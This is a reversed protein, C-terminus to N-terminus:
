IGDSCCILRRLPRVRGHPHVAGGLYTAQPHENLRAAALFPVPAAAPAPAPVPVIRRELHLLYSAHGQGRLSGTVDNGRQKTDVKKM